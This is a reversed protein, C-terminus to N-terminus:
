ARQWTVHKASWRESEGGGGDAEGRTEEEDQGGEAARRDPVFCCVSVAM